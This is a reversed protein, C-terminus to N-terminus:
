KNKCFVEVVQNKIEKQIGPHIHYVAYLNVLKNGCM